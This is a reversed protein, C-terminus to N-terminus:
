LIGTNIITAIRKAVEEKSLISLLEFPSPSRQQGSLAVRLPWLYSGTDKQHENLWKKILEEWQSAGKSVYELAEKDGSNQISTWSQQILEGIEQLNALSEEVTSKKWCIDQASPAHWNLICQSEMGIESLTTIRNQDLKFALKVTDKDLAYIDGVREQISNLITTIHEQQEPNSAPISQLKKIYELVDNYMTESDRLKIYERNFWNLKELNYRASSVSINSLNFEPTIHEILTEVREKSDLTNIESKNLYLEKETGPNWGLFALYNVLAEPLYGKDLYDSMNVNGDRKSMKKTGTEGLIVPLHIFKPLSDKGWLDEFITVHKPLSPYWEQARIILSTKMLHDDVAFALHYTPFGDGKLIVFDEELALNFESTGLLTDNCLITDQRQLHHMLAPREDSELVEKVSAYLNKDPFNAQNAKLYDLTSKTIKKFNQLQEKEEATLYNWYAKKEDILRQAAEHYYSLRESQIYPGYEGQQYIDYFENHTDTPQLTVGEDPVIHLGEMAQLLNQVSEPQLRSRDTDEIRIYWTGNNKAAFLKTFLMQRATGLHLYGTPSPAQRTRFENIM